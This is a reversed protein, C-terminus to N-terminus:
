KAATMRRVLAALTRRPHRIWPGAARRAEMFFVSLSRPIYLPRLMAEIVSLELRMLRAERDQVGYSLIAHTQTVCLGACYEVDDGGFTFARSMRRLTFDDDLEILRHEFSSVHHRDKRLHVVCLWGGRYRVLPSSGAWTELRGFRGRRELSLNGDSYSVVELPDIWYIWRLRDGDLCPMWNKECRADRPSPLLHREAIRNGELRCLAIQCFLPDDRLVWTATFWWADRWWFVRCDELRSASQRDIDAGSDDIRHIHIACFNEDLEVVPLRRRAFGRGPREPSPRLQSGPHYM